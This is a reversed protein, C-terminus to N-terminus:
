DGALNAELILRLISDELIGKLLVQAVKHVYYGLIPQLRFEYLPTVYPIKEPIRIPAIVPFLM